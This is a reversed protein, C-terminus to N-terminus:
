DVKEGKKIGYSRRMSSSRARSERQISSTTDSPGQVFPLSSRTRQLRRPRFTRDLQAPVEASKALERLRDEIFM